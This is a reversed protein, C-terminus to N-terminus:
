STPTWTAAGIHHSACPLACQRVRAAPAVCLTHLNVLRAFSHWEDNDVLDNESMDLLTLNVLDFLVPALKKMKNNQLTLRRLNILQLFTESPLSTIRNNELAMSSMATCAVKSVSPLSTLKNTHVSLTKLNPFATFVQEPVSSLENEAADLDALEKREFLEDPLASLHKGSLDAFNDAM